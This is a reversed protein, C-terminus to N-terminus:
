EKIKGDRKIKEDRLGKVWLGVLSPSVFFGLVYVCPILIKLIKSPVDVAGKVLLGMENGMFTWLLTFPFGHSLVAVTFQWMKVPLIALGFNKIQEPLPSFRWILAVRVPQKEISDKVLDMYENDKLKKTVYDRLVFRGLLFALMAGSTKGIANAVVGNKFGFAMGAATEVPTTVGVVLEWAMFAFVYMILGKTGMSSLVDLQKALEEKFNFSSIVDRNLVVLTVLSSLIAAYTIKKAVTAKKEKENLNIDVNEGGGRNTSLLISQGNIYAYNKGCKTLYPMNTNSSPVFGKMKSNMSSSRRLTQGICTSKTPVLAIIGRRRFRQPYDNLSPITSAGSHIVLLFFFVLSTSMLSRYRTSCFMKM